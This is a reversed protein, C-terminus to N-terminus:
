LSLIHFDIVSDKLCLELSLLISFLTLRNSFLDLNLSSFLLKEAHLKLLCDLKNNFSDVLIVISALSPIDKLLPTIIYPSFDVENVTDLVDECLRQKIIAKLSNFLSGSAIVIVTNFLFGEGFKELGEGTPLSKGIERCPPRTIIISNLSDRAISNILSVESFFPVLRYFISNSGM